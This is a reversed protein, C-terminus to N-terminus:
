AKSVFKKIKWIIKPLVGPPPDNPHKLYFRKFILNFFAGYFLAAVTSTMTIVNFPMTADPIPWTFLLTNTTLFYKLYNENNDAETEAEAESFFVLAGSLEIGRDSNLPFEDFRLFEREFPFYIQIKSKPPILWKSQILLSQKRNVAPEILFEKLITSLLHSPISKSNLSFETQHLFVGFFWPISEIVTVQVSTSYDNELVLGFGGIDDTSGSKFRFARFLHSPDLPHTLIPIVSAGIENLLDKENYQVTLVGNESSMQDKQQHLTNIYQQDDPIRLLVKPEHGKVPCAKKFSKGLLNKLTWQQNRNWRNLDFVTIMNLIMEIKINKCLELGDLCHVSFSLEISHFDSQYISEPKLMSALGAFNNCPLLDIWPQLNETCVPEGPVIGALM